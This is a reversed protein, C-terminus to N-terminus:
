RLYSMGVWPTVEEAFDAKEGWKAPDLVAHRPTRAGDVGCPARHIEVYPPPSLRGAGPFGGEQGFDPLFNRKARSTRVM